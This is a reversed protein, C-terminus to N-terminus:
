FGATFFIKIKEETVGTILDDYGRLRPKEPDNIKQLIGVKGNKYYPSLLLSM